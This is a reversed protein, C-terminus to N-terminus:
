RIKKRLQIINKQSWKGPEDPITIVTTRLKKKTGKEHSIAAELGAIIDQGVKTKRRM